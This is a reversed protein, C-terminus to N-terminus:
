AVIAVSRNARNRLSAVQKASSLRGRCRREDDRTCPSEPPRLRRQVAEFNGVIRVSAVSGPDRYRPLMFM